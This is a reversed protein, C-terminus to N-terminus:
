RKAERYPKKEQYLKLRSCYEDKERKSKGMEIVKTQWKVAAAFHTDIYDAKNWRIAESSDAM